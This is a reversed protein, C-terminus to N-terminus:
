FEKTRKITLYVAAGIIGVAVGIGILIEPIFPVVVIAPGM